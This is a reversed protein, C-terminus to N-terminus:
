QSLVDKLIDAWIDYVLIFGFHYCGLKYNQVQKYKQLKTCNIMPGVTNENLVIVISSINPYLILMSQTSCDDPPQSCHTGVSGVGVM